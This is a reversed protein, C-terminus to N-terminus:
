VSGWNTKKVVRWITTTGVGFQKALALAGLGQAKLRRIERVADATLKASGNNEGAATTKHVVKDNGNELPTGWALNDLRNNVPNGDLHRCQHGDPPPGVFANLVVTHLKVCLREAGERSLSVVVYGNADPTGSIQHWPTFGKEPKQGRIINSWLTGDAGVLYRPFGVAVAYAVSPDLM